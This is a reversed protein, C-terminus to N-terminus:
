SDIKPTVNKDKRCRHHKTKSAMSRGAKKAVAENREVNLAFKHARRTQVQLNDFPNNKVVMGKVKPRRSGDTVQFFLYM